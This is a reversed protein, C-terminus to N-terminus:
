CIIDLQQLTPHKTAVGTDVHKYLTKNCRKHSQKVLQSPETSNKLSENICLRSKTNTFNILKVNQRIQM